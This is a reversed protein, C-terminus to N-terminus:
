RRAGADRVTQEDALADDHKRATAEIIGLVTKAREVLNFKQVKGTATKPLSAEDCFLIHRPLKYKALRTKCWEQLEAETPTAGVVPVVYAAGIEGWREDPLGFVYAQSVLEHTCLVIEVEKPSVLEGGSKYQEKARGTLQVYGDPRIRGIDGSKLWGDAAYLAATAEPMEFYGETAFPTNWYLEGESGPVADQGCSPDVIRLQAVLGGWEPVGAAGGNMLHGITEEVKDIGDDPETMLETATTETMGYGTTLESIGLGSILKEWVWRPTAAASSLCAYLSSLDYEKLRSHEVVSMAMTPVFLCDTPRHRQISRLIDEPDFVPRMVVSGGVWIVGLLGVSFAFAHYLPLSFIIRRGDEYARHLALSYTNRLQQAHSHRVGKPSGTTGSTYMIVATDSPYAPNQPLPVADARGREMLDDVTTLGERATGISVVHRMEPYHSALDRQWQPAVSDLMALYDADRFTTMTVLLKCRSQKLVYDLEGAKYAFNVPIIAAGVRWAALALPAFVAYNAVLLAVRDGYGVGLARFGKALWESREQTEAYSWQADEAILYPREAYRRALRSFAEDITENRWVPTTKALAERRQTKTLHYTM